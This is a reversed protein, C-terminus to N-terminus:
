YGEHDDVNGEHLYSIPQVQAHNPRLHLGVVASLLSM